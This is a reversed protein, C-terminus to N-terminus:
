EDLLREFEVVTPGIEKLLQADENEPDVELVLDVHHWAENERDLALLAYAKGLHLDAHYEIALARDYWELSEAYKGEESLTYAKNSIALYEATELVGSDQINDGKLELKREDSIKGNNEISVEASSEYSIGWLVIFYM